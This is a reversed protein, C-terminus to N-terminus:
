TPIMVAIKMAASDEIRLDILRPHDISALGSGCSFFRIERALEITSSSSVITKAFM